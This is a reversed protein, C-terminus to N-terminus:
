EKVQAALQAEGKRNMILRAAFIAAAFVVATVLFTIFVNKTFGAVLFGIFCCGAVLLAYPIQSSVHDMHSCGAGASSMITSDSIPSCHDGFVSGSFVAALAPILLGADGSCIMAVIPILMLFTGWSTGLAFSMFAAIVFIIAPLLAMPFHSSTVVGEVFGTANLYERCLGSITWAMVLIIDAIVMTKFGNTVGNMFKKFGMLRRPVYLLLTVILAAFGGYVLSMFADTDGFAEFLTKGGEFMGGTYLMAIVTFLILAAIPIILDYVKGKDSVEMGDFDDKADENLAAAASGKELAQREFKAMPGFDFKRFSVIVIMILTFLAYLNYPITQIFLGLGNDTGVESLSAAITAAWSSIPAIICVPAATSDILYALKARSIHHKDTVPRMVTGVTLCNFYDDIFIVAGLIATAISAVTRNKIKKIAWEGYARAGGAMTVIAILGGLLALFLLVSANEGMKIVMEGFVVELVKVPSLGAMITYIFGGTFIGIALSSFVEKTILALVIAIVPPLISLWGADIMEFGEM